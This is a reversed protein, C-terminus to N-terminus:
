GKFHIFKTPSKQWNCLSDEMVQMGVQLDRDLAILHEELLSEQLPTEPDGGFLLRAGRLPGSAGKLYARGPSIPALGLRGLLCLFDFKGLRGFRAVTMHRYFHEFIAHPDNGSEHVLQAFRQQHSVSPGIWAVYSEVAAGTGSPRDGNISEYKRHNGFSGGIDSSRMTLWARFDAPSKSVRAWNWPMGEPGSYVDRLMRWGHRPHKGFHTALFIFWVAEDMRGAEMQLIAAREPDFLVNAPDGSAVSNPRKLLIETYELRRVSAVMQMALTDQAAVCEIGPLPRHQAAFSALAKSLRIALGARSPWKPASQTNL